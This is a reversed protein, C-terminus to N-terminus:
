CVCSHVVSVRPIFHESLSHERSLVNSGSLLFQKSDKFYQTPLKAGQEFVVCNM